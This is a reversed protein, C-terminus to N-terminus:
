WSARVTAAHPHGAPLAANRRRHRAPVVAGLATSLVPSASRPAWATMAKAAVVKMSPLYLACRSLAPPAAMTMGTASNKRPSTGIITASGDERQDKMPRPNSAIPALAAFVVKVSAPPKTEMAKATRPQYWAAPVDYGGGEAAGEQWPDRRRCTLQM